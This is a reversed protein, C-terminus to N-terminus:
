PYMDLDRASVVQGRYGAERIERLLDADTAGWYLQHYLVLLGPRANAALAALETTSTHSGAHYRQWEPPIGAFREASYVEHVLVDCGGCARVVADTPRTDGSVVISRGGADFRYGFASEWNTHPVAFARVTVLSDRYVIGEDVTTAEIRWGDPTSPQPGKTRIRIDERYAETLHHAMEVIGPPGLLRFPASREAVWSTHVLDPLGATHDSHLHTIFGIGLRRALLADLGHRHRALAARRVLGPGADVVYAAEGIVIAVSPGSRDPDPNPTGTGLIVVRAPATQATVAAPAVCAAVAISLLGARTM